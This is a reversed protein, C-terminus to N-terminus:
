REFEVVVVEIILGPFNITRKSFFRGTPLSAESLVKLQRAHWGFAKGLISWSGLM